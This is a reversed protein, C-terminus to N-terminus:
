ALDPKWGISVSCATPIAGYPARASDPRHPLRASIMLRTNTRGSPTSRKAKPSRLALEAEAVLLGELAWVEREALILSAGPPKAVQVAATAEVPAAGLRSKAHAPKASKVDRSGGGCAALVLCTGIGLFWKRMGKM